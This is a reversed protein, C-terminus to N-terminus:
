RNDDGEIMEIGVHRWIEFWRSECGDAECSVKHSGSDVFSDYITIDSSGCTPCCNVEPEGRLQKVETLLDNMFLADSSAAVVEASVGNHAEIEHMITQLREVEELLLPADNLLTSTATHQEITEANKLMWKSWAWTQGESALHGKYKDTDIM